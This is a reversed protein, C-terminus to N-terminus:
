EVTASERVVGLLPELEHFAPGPQVTQADTNWDVYDYDALKPLHSHYFRVGVTDDSLQEPLDEPVSLPGSADALALLLQQRDPHALAEFADTNM